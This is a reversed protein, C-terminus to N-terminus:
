KEYKLLTKVFDTSSFFMLEFIPNLVAKSDSSESILKFCFGDGFEKIPLIEFEVPYLAKVMNLVKKQKKHSDDLLINEDERLDKAEKLLVYKDQHIVKNWKVLGEPYEIVCNKHLIPNPKRVRLTDLLEYFNRNGGVSEVYKNLENSLSVKEEHSLKKLYM